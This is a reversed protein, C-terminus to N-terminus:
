IRFHAFAKNAEAMRWVEERKKISAGEKKYASVIEAAMKKAITKENRKRAFNVIWRFALTQQREPSVEMPVQYNAGGIRRSKVEVRPKVNEVAQKFVKVPDDNLEEEILKLTNYFKSEALSKKGKKMIQNIFKAIIVDHYKPDPLIERKQARRRRSM